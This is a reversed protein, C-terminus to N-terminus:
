YSSTRCREIYKGGTGAMIVPGFVPDMHVGAAFEFLGNEMPAVVWRKDRIGLKELTAWQSDFVERVKAESDIALAVLGHESKHPIKGFM